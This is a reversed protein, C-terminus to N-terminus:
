HLLCPGGAKIDHSSGHVTAIALQALMMFIVVWDLNAGGEKAKAGKSGQGQQRAQIAQKVAPVDPRASPCGWCRGIGHAVRHSSFSRRPPWSTQDADPDSLGLLQGKSCVRADRLYSLSDRPPTRSRRNRGRRPRRYGDCQLLPFFLFSRQIGRSSDGSRSAGGFLSGTERSDNPSNGINHNTSFIGSSNSRKEMSELYNETLMPNNPNKSNIKGDQMQRWSARVDKVSVSSIRLLRTSKSKGVQDSHRTAFYIEHLVHANLQLFM